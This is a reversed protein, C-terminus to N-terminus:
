RRRGMEGADYGGLAEVQRRVAPSRLLGLLAGVAPLGLFHDPIVLDYSEEELPLTDLGWALAAARIGVGADALGAAIAEAM